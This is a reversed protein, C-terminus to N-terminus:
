CPVLTCRKSSVIRQQYDTGFYQKISLMSHHPTVIVDSWGHDEAVDDDDDTDCLDEEEGEGEEEGEEEGEGEDGVDEEDVLSVPTATETAGARIQAYLAVEEEEEEETGITGYGARLGCLMKDALGKANDGIIRENDVSLKAIADLASQVDSRRQKKATPTM